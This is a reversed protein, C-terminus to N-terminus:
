ALETLSQNHTGESARESTGEATKTLDTTLDVFVIKSLIQAVDFIEIVRFSLLGSRLAKRMIETYVYSHSM